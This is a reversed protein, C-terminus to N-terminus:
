NNKLIFAASNGAFILQKVVKAPQLISSPNAFVSIHELVMSIFCVVISNVQGPKM